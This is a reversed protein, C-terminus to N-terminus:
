NLNAMIVAANLTATTGFVNAFSITYPYSVSVRTCLVTVNTGSSTDSEPLARAVTITFTGGNACVVSNSWTFGGGTATLGTPDMGCPDANAKALSAVVASAAAQVSCPAGGCNPPFTTMDNFSAVAVRAGDRAAGDLKDKLMWAQGFDVIGALLLVLVPLAFAMEILEAGKENSALNRFPPLVNKVRFKRRLGM